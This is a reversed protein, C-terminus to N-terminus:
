EQEHRHADEVLEADPKAPELGLRGELFVFFREVFQDADLDNCITLHARRCDCPASYPVGETANRRVPLTRIVIMWGGLNSRWTAATPHQKIPPTWDHPVGRLANGVACSPNQMTSAHLSIRLADVIM